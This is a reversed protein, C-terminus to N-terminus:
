RWKSWEKDCLENIILKVLVAMGIVGGTAMLFVMVTIGLELAMIIDTM